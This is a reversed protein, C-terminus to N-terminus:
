VFGDVSRRVQVPRHDIGCPMEPTPRSVAVFIMPSTHGLIVKLASEITALKILRKYAVESYAIKVSGQASRYQPVRSRGQRPRPRFKM